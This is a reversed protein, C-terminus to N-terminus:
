HSLRASSVLLGHVAAAVSWVRVGGLEASSAAQVSTCAAADRGSAEVGMARVYVGRVGVGGHCM